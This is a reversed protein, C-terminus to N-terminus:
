VLCCPPWLDKRLRSPVTKKGLFPLQDLSDKNQCLMLNICPLYHSPPNECKSAANPLLRSPKYPHQQVHLHITWSQSSPRRTQTISRRKRHTQSRPPLESSIRQSSQSEPNYNQWNDLPHHAQGHAQPPDHLQNRFILTSPRYLDIDHQQKSISLPISGCQARSTQTLQECLTVKTCLSRINSQVSSARHCLFKYWRNM